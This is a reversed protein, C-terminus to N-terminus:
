IMEIVEMQTHWINGEQSCISALIPVLLPELFCVGLITTQYKTARMYNLLVCGGEGKPSLLVSAVWPIWRFLLPLRDSTAAHLPNLHLAVSLFQSHCKTAMTVIIIRFVTILPHSRFVRLVTFLLFFIDLAKFIWSSIQHSDSTEIADRVSGTEKPWQVSM